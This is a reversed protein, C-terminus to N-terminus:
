KAQSTTAAELAQDARAQEELAKELQAQADLFEAMMPQLYPMVEDAHDVPDDGRREIDAVQFELQAVQAELTDVRHQAQRTAEDARHKAHTLNELPNAAGKYSTYHPISQPETPTATSAQQAPEDRIIRSEPERQAPNGNNRLSDIESLRWGVVGIGILLLTVIVIPKTVM